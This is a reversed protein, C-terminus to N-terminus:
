GKPEGPTEVSPTGSSFGVGPVTGSGDLAPTTSKPEPTGPRGCPSPDADEPALAARGGRLKGGALEQLKREARKLAARWKKAKRDAAKAKRTWEAAKAAAADRKKTWRDAPTEAAAKAKRAAKAKAAKVQPPLTDRLGRVKPWVKWGKTAMFLKTSWFAERDTWAKSYHSVGRGHDMGENHLIEHAIVRCTGESLKADVPLWIRRGGLSGRGLTAHLNAPLIETGPRVQEALKRLIAFRVRQEHTLAIEHRGWGTGVVRYVYRGDPRRGVLEMGTADRM